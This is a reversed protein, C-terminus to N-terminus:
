FFCFLNFRSKKKKIVDVNIQYIEYKWVTVQKLLKHTTKEGKRKL